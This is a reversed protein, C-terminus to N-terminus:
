VKAGSRHEKEQESKKEKLSKMQDKFWLSGVFLSLVMVTLVGGLKMVNQAFLVYSKADPDYHFCYLIIRDITSGVKGESAELLGLKLDRGSFKIGYLYRSIVGVPSILYIAAPHAWEGREEVYYYKFGLANALAESQSQEGVLFHWGNEAGRINLAKIYNAKKAAALEFSETPEISVTVIEFNEGPVWGLENVGETIGNFVLNCLMPCQYYGMALLTPKDETFYDGLKVPNGKDDTFKLNMPLSDGLHEVIDISLLEPVSDRVLQANLNPASIALCVTVLAFRLYSFFRSTM